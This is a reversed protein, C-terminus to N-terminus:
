SRTMKWTSPSKAATRCNPVNRLELDAETAAGLRVTVSAAGTKIAPTTRRHHKVLGSSGPHGNIFLLNSPRPTAIGGSAGNLHIHYTKGAELTVAFWDLDGAHGIEGTMPDGVAVTDTNPSRTLSDDFM